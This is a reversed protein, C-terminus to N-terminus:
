HHKKTAAVVPVTETATWEEELEKMRWMVSGDRPLLFVIVL